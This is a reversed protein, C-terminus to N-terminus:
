LPGVAAVADLVITVVFITLSASEIRAIKLKLLVCLRVKKTKIKKSYFLLLYHILIQGICM